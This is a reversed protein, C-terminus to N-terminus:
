LSEDPLAETERYQILFERVAIMGDSLSKPYASCTAPLGNVVVTNGARVHPDSDVAM